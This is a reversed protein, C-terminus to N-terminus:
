RGLAETLFADIKTLMETRVKSDDLNHQLDDYESYQVRKGADKLRDAMARSHRVEVNVDRTAHFLAVPANFKEAHRLPSGAAIHPGDGLQEDRIRSSTYARADSRLYNLDTVPAIAVVAKYLDPAVVQSQLAAYGGYSWGAIALQDPNAIGESVLWRGADNVDGIAVDWAQYGNKGFWDEGYGASGRYNPQLVAYGRAVLFQVIWDFGWYDRAAPGGHPLVIAPLNKGDSGPPLTLYGPIETGDAAPFSVPKMPGMLQDVLFQRMALLQELQRSGKDYLYVTGPDTDSSAIILLKSEDASAGVINILPQNPLAKGLDESLKKLEEDFYAVSRKETAYSVGVVRRQRGIRILGDVDVDDRAFMVSGATPDSLPVEALADYGDRAIYGFASDRRGDVALPVFREVSKGDVVVNDFERWRNSGSARFLYFFKGTLRGNADYGARIKVRVQGQEDAVYRIAGNDPQEAVRRRGNSVDIQDVGLGEKTNALRTGTSREKVYNKTMLIRGNQGAVDFAVIDGGSQNFGLARLSGRESLSAVDSGDYNIAFMRDFGVLVGDSGRGMGDIQCILREDTAWRCWSLDGIEETNQAIQKVGGGAALDVVNLVESHEPGAAIWAIKNGSPSLSIDLVSARVGYRAAVEEISEGNERADQAIAQQAVLGSMLALTATASLAESLLKM